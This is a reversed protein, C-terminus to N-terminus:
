LTHGDELKAMSEPEEYVRGEEFRGMLESIRKRVRRGERRWVERWFRERWRRL